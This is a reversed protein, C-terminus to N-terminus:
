KQLTTVDFFRLKKDIIEDIGFVYQSLSHTNKISSKSKGINKVLLSEANPGCAITTSIRNVKDAFFKNSKDKLTFGVNEFCGDDIDSCYLFYPVYGKSFLEKEAFALLKRTEKTQELSNKEIRPNYKCNQAYIDINVAGLDSAIELNRKIQLEKEDMIGVVLQFSVDFGFGIMLKYVEYLDKFEFKRCLKRLTLTNFSLQNIIIQSVNHKKLIALKEATVFKPAGMEVLINGFSYNISKFIQEILNEELAMLNGTFVINKVMYFKNKVIQKACEIEKVLADCFYPYIDTEKDKDYMVNQCGVCRSFCFPINILLNVEQDNAVLKVENELVSVILEAKSRECGCEFNLYNVLKEQSIGKEKMFVKLQGVPNECRLFEPWPCKSFDQNIPKAKPIYLKPM